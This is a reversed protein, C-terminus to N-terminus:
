TKIQNWDMKGTLVAETTKETGATQLSAKIRHACAVIDPSDAQNLLVIRRATDPTSKFLGEPHRILKVISEETITTGMPQELLRSLHEARHANTHNLATGLSSLGVVGLVLTTAEPIVPEHGAPAKIPKQRAGDAEVLIAEYSTQRAIAEIKAPAYGILKDQEPNFSQFAIDLQQNESPQVSQRQFWDGTLLRFAGPVEEAPYAMQTTTTVLVSSGQCILYRALAYICSTKGGAGVVSVIRDSPTLLCALHMIPDATM